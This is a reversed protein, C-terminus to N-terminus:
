KKEEFHDPNTDRINQELLDIKKKANLAAEYFLNEVLGEDLMEMPTLAKLEDMSRSTQKVLGATGMVVQAAVLRAETEKLGAALGAHIMGEIAPLVSRMAAGSLGVCWNMQDDRVEVTTGLADLVEFVLRRADVSTRESFSVPNIGQGVLSPMNPMIRAVGVEPPVLAELVSMPVGAAFSIVLHGSKLENQITKLLPVIAKPGACLLWITAECLSPDQLDFVCAGVASAAAAAREPETDCVAMRDPPVGMVRMRELLMRGINGAGLVAIRHKRFANTTM